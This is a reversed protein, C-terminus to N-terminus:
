LREIKRAADDILDAADFLTQKDQHGSLCIELVAKLNQLARWVPGADTQGGVARLTDLKTLAAQAEVNHQELYSTGPATLAFQRKAGGLAPQSEIQGLDELMALTPYVIGPSPAYRGGTRHDIERILDYGHRPQLQMLSLLVLRLEGADFMRRRGRGERGSGHGGWAGAGRRDNTEEM